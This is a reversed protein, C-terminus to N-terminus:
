EYTMQSRGARKEQISYLSLRSTKFIDTLEYNSALVDELCAFFLENVQSVKAQAWIKTLTQRVLEPSSLFLQEVEVAQQAKLLAREIPNEIIDGESLDIEAEIFDIYDALTNGAIEETVKTNVITYALTRRLLSSPALTQEKGFGFQTRTLNREDYLVRRLAPVDNGAADIGAASDILKQWLHEPIRTAQGPRILGWEIHTNKLALQEPDERLTFDKTFRLKFTNDKTVVYTLGSLTVADYFWDGAGPSSEQVNQFTLYNSPGDRLLRTIAQVSLKKGSAATTKNKVWFYYTRTSLNGDLDRDQEVVYEYDRKYHRQISFDDEADPNFALEEDTPTYGRILVAISAGATVGNITITTADISYASRLQAAGNIYVTTSNEDISSPATVTVSGSTLATQSLLTDQILQWDSWSSSFRLVVEGSNLTLPNESEAVAQAIKEVTVASLERYEGPYPKWTQNPAKADALLEAQTPISWAAWGGNNLYESTLPDNSYVGDLSVAGAVVKEVVVADYVRLNAALVAVVEAAPEDYSGTYTSSFKFSISFGLQPLDVSIGQGEYWTVAPVPDGDPQFVTGFPVELTTSSDVDTIAIYATHDIGLVTGDFDLRQVLRPLAASVLVAGNQSTQATTAVIISGPLVAAPVELYRAVPPQLGYQLLKVQENILLESVPLPVSSYNDFTGIRMGTTIGYDSFNGADLFCYTDNLINLSTSFSRQFSPHGGATTGTRSWAVPRHYWIRDRYYIQPLAVEGSARVEAATDANGALEKALANYEAPPVTSKVWEYVDISAYDTPSGWRSLREAIQPYIQQDYYPVYALKTTDFWVRGVEKEGWPRLPDYNNNNVALTSYNYKAPDESGIINIGEAAVPTHFGSAPHWFPIEEVLEQAAYNILKVPSYREADPGYGIVQLDGGGTVEITSYSIRNYTATGTIQLADATFPLTIVEGPTVSKSFTGIARAKFQTDKNLDDISFWRTEDLKSIQTFNPLLVPLQADFQLQTFQQLCDNVQLKLEPFEKPRADGYEAVKYAWFEDVRADKFRDNNLYADFSLNTGKYQVLGRWFNFQAKKSIDLSDFYDKSTFGLLALAHRTILENEHAHNADYARQLSDTSAQINPLVEGKSLFYGGFEPRFTLNSQRRGNFSYTTTRSGSFPDYLIGEKTSPQVYNSFIFLHEYEDIQAHASFMPITAGFSSELNGRSIRLDAVPIRNGLTDYVATHSRVDFIPSTSFQALLGTDQRLWIRDFFPNLVVGEGPDIGRYVRDILKEIDLQWTRSRGTEADVPRPESSSVKWGQDELYKVYGFIINICNQLGTVTIPLQTSTTSLVGTYQKWELSTASSDLAKFTLYEGATDLLYYTIDLFRPNYGEIRFVWDSADNSPYLQEVGNKRAQSGYEVVTVRLGHIWLSKAAENKKLLLQYSAPSLTYGSTFIKLDQTSVMGAVRHGMQVEWERYASIAYSTTSDVSVDRLANVFIQGFGLVSHKQAPTFEVGAPSITFTDGIKFPIGGDEITVTWGDVSGTVGERLYGVTGNADRVTFNQYRAFVGPATEIVEYGDYRATLTSTGGLATLAGTRDNTDIAEGHLMFRRHGPMGVKFGDYLIGDVEVWNFGWCFALFELPNFQFFAKAQAYKYEISRSWVEEVPSSEGFQYTASIGSPIVYTLALQHTSPALANWPDTVSWGALTSTPSVYPPLLSDTRVNVSLRLMPHLVQVDQWLKTTWDRVQAFFVPNLLAPSASVTAVWRTGAYGAGDAVSIVLGGPITTNYPAPRSWIYPSVAGVQWIGCNQPADNVLLVLDGPQLTVGDITQLGQLPNFPNGSTGSVADVVRVTPGYATGVGLEDPTMFSTYGLQNAPTALPNYPVAATPIMLEWDARTSYGFLKWPEANPRETAIVGSVSAQHATLVRHWRAPVTPTTLQAVNVLAAQSYNWTFADSPAYDTGLADLGERVAFLFFERRLNELYVPNTEIQSIDYRRHNPNINSWLRREVLLLLQNLNNAFSVEKWPDATSVIWGSGNSEYLTQTQRNWWLTGVPEVGTPTTDFDVAFAKICACQPEAWLEGKYPNVPPTSTFSGIIPTSTGDSRKILRSGASGIIQQKLEMTDLYITSGHGDHHILLDRGLVPDFYFVPYVLDGVGLQPLTIPFGTVGSTTDYLVTRTDLDNARISLIFDLLANVKATEAPSGDASVVGVESFYIPAEKFYIDVLTNLARAYLQKALDIMSLATMDRQMLLSALLTHQESWLKINGGFSYDIPEGPLQNSLISRIHTQVSGEALPARIENYPNHIFTRPVQWAGEAAVDAQAGGFFDLINNDDNRYVYRPRELNGIAFIFTDGPSFAGNITFKVRYNSYQVGVTATSYPAPLEGLKSSEVKFTTPSIASVTWFEQPATESIWDVTLTGAGTGGFVIPVQSPDSPEIHGPEWVTKLEGSKKFFLLHGAEDVCGHNFLPDNSINGTRKIRRQLVLDLEATQDEEYYFISSVLQAHTGDYRFLDFLPVQNFESKTQRFPTGTDSPKGNLVFANLQLDVDYEIIPRKAQEADATSIGIAVLEDRHVWYNGEQWDNTNNGAGSVPLFSWLGPAGASVYRTSSNVDFVRAGVVETAGTFDPAPTFTGETVVYIGAGLAAPALVHANQTVLVRAGEYLQVGQISQYDRLTGVNSVKPKKGSSGSFSVVYNSSFYTPTVTFTDGAAAQIYGLGPNGPDVLERTISFKLLEYQAPGLEVMFVFDEKWEFPLAPPPVASLSFTSTVPTYTGGPGVLPNSPTVTFNYADSFQLSFTQALFGSGTLVVQDGPQTATVVNLKDLDAPEPRAIVYYEPAGEINWPRPAGSSPKVWYYQYFNAFKDFSIPPKFNNGQSFLWSLDETDLGLLAARNMLDQFTFAHTESGITFKFVPTVANIDREVSPQAIRPLKDDPDPSAQGVYGYFAISEDKTMFRNFLNDLLGSVVGNRLHQPIYKRLDNFPLNFDLKQAM